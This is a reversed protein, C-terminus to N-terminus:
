EGLGKLNDWVDEGPAFRSVPHDNRRAGELAHVLMM